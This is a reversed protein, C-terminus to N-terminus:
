RGARNRPSHSMAVRQLLRQATDRIPRTVTPMLTARITTDKTTADASAPFVFLGACLSLTLAISLIIALTKKM